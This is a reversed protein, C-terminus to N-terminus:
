KSTEMSKLRGTYHEKVIYPDEGRNHMRTRLLSAGHVLIFVRNWSSFSLNLRPILAHTQISPQTAVAPGDVSWYPFQKM